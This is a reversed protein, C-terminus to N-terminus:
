FVRTVPSVVRSGIPLPFASPAGLAPAAFAPLPLAPAAPLIPAPLAHAPGVPVVSKHVLPTKEVVANFGNIPDATYIVTRLSGDPEVM